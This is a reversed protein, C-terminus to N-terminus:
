PMLCLCSVLYELSVLPLNFLSALRRQAVHIKPWPVPLCGFVSVVSTGSPHAPTRIYSVVFVRRLWLRLHEWPFRGEAEGLGWPQYIGCVESLSLSLSRGSPSPSEFQPRLEEAFFDFYDVDGLLPNGESSCSSGTSRLTKTPSLTIRCRDLIRSDHIKRCAGCTRHGYFSLAQGWSCSSCSSCSQEGQFDQGREKCATRQVKARLSKEHVAASGLLQM